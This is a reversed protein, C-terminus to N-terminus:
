KIIVIKAPIYNINGSKVTVTYFGSLMQESSITIPNTTATLTTEQRYVINGLIDVISLLITEEVTFDVLVEFSNKAPNPQVLIKNRPQISTSKPAINRYIGVAECILNDDFFMTEDLLQLLNRARIVAPGGKFKCQNAIFFLQSYRSEIQTIGGTEFALYADNVNKENEDPIQTPVVSLNASIAATRMQNKFQEKSAIELELQSQIESVQEILLNRAEIFGAQMNNALLSDLINISDTALMLSEHLEDFQTGFSGVSIAEAILKDTQFLTGISMANQDDVFDIYEPKSQALVEDNAFTEYLQQKAIFKSETIFDSTITEDNIIQMRLDEGGTLSNEGCVLYTSCEFSNGGPLKNFWPGDDVFFPPLSDALPIIPNHSNVTQNTSFLSALLNGPNSDNLNVAGYGSLYNASDLWVNGHYEPMPNTVPPQQSIVAASNLYLGVYHIGITNGRFDTDANGGGFFIGKHHGSTTNCTITTKDSLSIDIGTSYTYLPNNSSTVSNCSVVCTDANNLLIGYNSTSQTFSPQTLVNGTIVAYKANQSVIGYSSKYDIINGDITYRANGSTIESLYIAASASLTSNINIFNERVSIGASGANNLLDIGRFYANITNSSIEAVTSHYSNRVHVGYRVTDMLVGRVTTNCRATYIGYLNNYFYNNAKVHLMSATQLSDSAMTIGKGHDSLNSPATVDKIMNIFDNNECTIWSVKGVVGRMMNFFVNKELGTTGITGGWRNTEVGSMPISGFAAQGNYRPLFQNKSVSHM